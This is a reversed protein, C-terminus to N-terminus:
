RGLITRGVGPSRPGCMDCARGRERLYAGFKDRSGPPLSEIITTVTNVAAARIENQIHNIEGMKTEVADKKLSPAAILSMMEGRTTEMQARLVVVDQKSKDILGLIPSAQERTLHLDEQLFNRMSKQGVSVAALTQSQWWFFVFAIATAGNLALSFTLLYILWKRRM